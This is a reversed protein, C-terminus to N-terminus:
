FLHIVAKVKEIGAFILCTGTLSDRLSIKRAIVRISIGFGKSGKIVKIDSCLPLLLM